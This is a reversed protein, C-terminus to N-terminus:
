PEPEPMRNGGREWIRRRGTRWGILAGALMLMATVWYAAGLAIGFLWGGAVSGLGQGLSAAATQGGLAAGQANAAQLSVQYALMPILIGSGAGILASVASALAFATVFPLALMGLAMAVFAPAVIFAFKVRRRLPAFVLTQVLVMAVSCVMFLVGIRWPDFGLVQAGQLAVAVEFSGLGFMSLLALFQSIRLGAVSGSGDPEAPASNQAVDSEPLGFWVALWLVAGGAAAIFFPLSFAAGPADVLWSGLVPGLLFGVTSAATM